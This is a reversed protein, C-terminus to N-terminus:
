CRLLHHDRRARLKSNGTVSGLARAPLVAGIVTIATRLESTNGYGADMLAVGRPLDAECAWHLQDLAIEHKTKFGIDEPVGAEHLRERGRTWEEPLYLRYAM